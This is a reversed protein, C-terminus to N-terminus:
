SSEAAAPTEVPELSGELDIEVTVFKEVRLLLKSPDKMGWEVYPVELTATGTLRDGDVEVLCPPSEGSFSSTQSTSVIPSPTRARM